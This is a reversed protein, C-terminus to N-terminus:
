FGTVAGHPLWCGLAASPQGDLRFQAGPWAPRMGVPWAPGPQFEARLGPPRYSFLLCSAAAPRTVASDRGGAPSRHHYVLLCSGLGPPRVLWLAALADCASGPLLPGHLRGLPGLFSPTQSATAMRRTGRSPLAWGVAEVALGFGTAAARGRRWCRSSPHATGARTKGWSSPFHRGRPSPSPLATASAARATTLSCPLRVPFITPPSLTPVRGSQLM